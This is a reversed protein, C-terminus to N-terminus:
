AKANSRRANLAFLFLAIGRKSSREKIDTIFLNRYQMIVENYRNHSYRIAATKHSSTNYM